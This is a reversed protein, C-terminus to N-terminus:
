LTEGAVVQGRIASYGFGLSPLFNAEGYGVRGWVIRGRLFFQLVHAYSIREVHNQLLILVWIDVTKSGLKVMGFGVQEGRADKEM